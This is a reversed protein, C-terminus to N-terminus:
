LKRKRRDIAILTIILIGSVIVAPSHFEPVASSVVLTLTINYTLNGYQGTTANYTNGTVYIVYTGAALTTPVTISLELNSPATTNNEWAGANVSTTNFTATAGTPLSHVEFNGVTTSWGYPYWVKLYYDGTGGPAVTVTYNVATIRFGIDHIFNWANIVGWGTPMDYGVKPAAPYSYPYVQTIDYFPPASSYQGNVYYDYGLQYITPNIFGFGSIGSTEWGYQRGAYAAMDAF